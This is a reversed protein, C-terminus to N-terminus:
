KGMSNLDELTIEKYDTPIVLDFLEKQKKDLKKDVEVAAMTMKLGQQSMEYELAFGPIKESFMSQGKKDVEIESTYWFFSENGEADTILAKNCKFGLITKTEDVLKVNIADEPKKKNIETITTKIAQKGVMGSMLMLLQDTEANAVTIMTMITGMAFESRTTKNNFFLDLKSNQLMAVQMQMEPNNSEIDIKFKVHGEKIQSFSSISIFLLAVVTLINKM